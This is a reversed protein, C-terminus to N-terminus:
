GSRARRGVHTGPEVGLKGEEDGEVVAIADDAPRTHARVAIAADVLADSLVPDVDIRAGAAAADPAPQEVREGARRLVGPEVLERAADERGVRCAEGHMAGRPEVLDAHLRAVAAEVALPLVAYEDLAQEPGCTELCRCLISLSM